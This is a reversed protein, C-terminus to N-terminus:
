DEEAARESVKDLALDYYWDEGGPALLLGCATLDRADLRGDAVAKRLVRKDPAMQTRVCDSRALAILRSAAMDGTVGTALRFVDPQARFGVRGFLVDLRKRKGPLLAQRSDECRLRLQRALEDRMKTARTIRAHFRNRSAQLERNLETEHADLRLQERGIRYLLDEVEDPTIQATQAKEVM